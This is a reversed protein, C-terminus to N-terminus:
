PLPAWELTESHRRNRRAAAKKRYRVEIIEITWGLSRIQHESRERASVRAVCRCCPVELGNVDNSHFRNGLGYTPLELKKSRQSDKSELRIIVAVRNSSM